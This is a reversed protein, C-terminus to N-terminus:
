AAVPAVVAPAPLAERVAASSAIERAAAALTTFVVDFHADRIKNIRKDNEALEGWMGVAIRADPFRDRLRKCVYIAQRASGPPIVSVCFKQSTTKAVAEVTESALLKSPIVVAAVGSEALLRALMVCGIEDGLDRAPICVFPEPDVLPQSEAALKPAQNEALEGVIERAIGLLRGRDDESLTGLRFDEDILRLAPIILSDFTSALGHEKLHAEILDTVEDDDHALLRQYLRDEPAIPPRDGLIVDLFTLSPIYKGLVAICVTLPTALLLGTTGWLWTWFAASAIIALPSIGTKSGYLWPELVNSVLLEVTLFLAFTLVPITWGPSMALSLLLPCTAGIWPGIYPVFRFLGALMGWLMANPIGVFYLGISILVGYSMNVTFQALLYRSVRLAAEDLAQTTVQLHSRGILHILRDRMDERELLFFIVLLLVLAATGLPALVPRAVIKVSEWSSTPNTVITVPVPAADTKEPASSPKAPLTAAGSAPAEPAVPPKAGPASQVAVRTPDPAAPEQKLEKTVAESVQKVSNAARDLASNKPAKFAIIKAQLNSQYKPLQAALDIVQSAVLFFLCGFLALVLLTSGVVAFTRGIGLRELRQILPALLFSVLVALALPILFERALYLTTVVVVFPLLINTATPKRLGNM